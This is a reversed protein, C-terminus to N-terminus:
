VRKQWSCRGASLETAWTHWLAALTVPPKRSCGCEEQSVCTAICCANGGRVGERQMAGAATLVRCFLHRMTLPAPSCFLSGASPVCLGIGQAGWLQEGSDSQGRGAFLWPKEELVWAGDTGKLAKRVKAFEEESLYDEKRTMDIGSGSRM